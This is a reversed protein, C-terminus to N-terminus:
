FDLFAITIAGIAQTISSAPDIASHRTQNASIPHLIPKCTPNAPQTHLNPTCTPHAPQFHSRFTDDSTPRCSFSNITNLGLEERLKAVT